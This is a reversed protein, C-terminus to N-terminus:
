VSASSRVVIPNTEIRPASAIYPMARQSRCEFVDSATPETV